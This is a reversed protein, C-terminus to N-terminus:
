KEVFMCIKHMWEAIGNGGSKLMEAKVEDTKGMKLRSLAAKIEDKSLTKQVPIKRREREPGMCSIVADNGVRSERLKKVYEKKWQNLVEDSLSM